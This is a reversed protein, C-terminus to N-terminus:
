KALQSGTTRSKPRGGANTVCSPIVVSSTGHDRTSATNTPPDSTCLSPASARDITSSACRRPNHVCMPLTFVTRRRLSATSHPTSETSPLEYAINLSM